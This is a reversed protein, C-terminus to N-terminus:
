VHARGIKPTADIKGRRALDDILASHGLTGAFIAFPVQGPADSIALVPKVGTVREVDAQLDGAARRVGPWDDASVQIRAATHNAVLPLAGPAPQFEIERAGGLAARSACALVFVAGLRATLRLLSPTM